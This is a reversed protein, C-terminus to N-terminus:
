SLLFDTRCVWLCWINRPGVIWKNQGSPMQQQWVSPRLRGAVAGQAARSAESCCGCSEWEQGPLLLQGYVANEFLFRHGVYSM